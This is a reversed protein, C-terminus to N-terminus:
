PGFRKEIRAVEEDYELLDGRDASTIGKEVAEIFRFERELYRNLVEEVLEDTGRRQQAAIGALGAELEPRLTTGHGKPASAVSPPTL